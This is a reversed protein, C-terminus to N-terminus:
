CFVKPTNSSKMHILHAFVLSNAPINGEYGRTYMQRLTM